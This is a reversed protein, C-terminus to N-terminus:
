KQKVEGYELLEFWFESHVLRIRTHICRVPFLYM